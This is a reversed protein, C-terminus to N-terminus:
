LLMRTFISHDMLIIKCLPKTQPSVFQNDYVSKVKNVPKYRIILKTLRSEHFIKFSVEFFKLEELKGTLEVNISALNVNAM